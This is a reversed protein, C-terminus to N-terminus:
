PNAGSPLPPASGSPQPSQPATTLADPAQSRPQLAAVLFPVALSPVPSRGALAAAEPWPQGWIREPGPDVASTQDSRCMRVRERGGCPAEGPELCSQLAFSPKGGACVSVRAYWFM